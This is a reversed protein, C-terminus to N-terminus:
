AELGVTPRHVETDRCDGGDEPLVDGDPQEVVPHEVDSELLQPHALMFQAQEASRELPRPPLDEDRTGGTGAFRGSEIGAELFQVVRRDLDVRDLIRHFALHRANDLGLDLRADPEGEGGHEPRQHPAVRVDDHDTLDPVALGGQDRRLRRQGAVQHKRGKVGVVGRRGDGSEHLHTKGGVEDRRGELAHTACRSARCSHGRQLFITVRVGSFM